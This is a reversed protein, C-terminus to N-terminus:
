MPNCCVVMVFIIFSFDEKEIDDVGAHEPSGQVKNINDYAIVKMQMQKRKVRVSTPLVHTCAQIVESVKGQQNVM